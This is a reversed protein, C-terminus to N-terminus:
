SRPFFLAKAQVALKQTPKKKKGSGLHRSTGLASQFTYHHADWCPVGPTTGHGPRGALPAPTCTRAMHEASALLSTVVVHVQQLPQTRKARWILFLGSLCDSLQSLYNSQCRLQAVPYKHAVSTCCPFRPPQHKGQAFRGPCLDWSHTHAASRESSSCATFLM